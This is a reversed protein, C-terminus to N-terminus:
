FDYQLLEMRRLYEDESIIHNKRMRSAESRLSRIRAEDKLLQGKWLLYNDEGIICEKKAMDLTKLKDLINVNANAVFTKLIQHTDVLLEAKEEEFLERQKNGMDYKEEIEKLSRRYDEIVDAPSFDTDPKVKAIKVVSTKNRGKKKLSWQLLIVALNLLVTVLLVLSLLKYGGTAFSMLVMASILIGVTAIIEIPLNIFQRNSFVSILNIVASCLLVAAAASLEISPEFYILFCLASLVSVASTLLLFILNAFWLINKEVM